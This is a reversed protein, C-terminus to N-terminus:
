GSINEGYTLIPPDIGFVAPQFEKPLKYDSCYELNYSTYNLHFLEFPIKSGFIFSM